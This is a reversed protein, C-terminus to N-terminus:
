VVKRRAAEAGLFVRRVRAACGGACGLLPQLEVVVVVVVRVAAVEFGGCFGVVGSAGSVLEHRAFCLVYADFSFDVAVEIVVAIVALLVHGGIVAALLSHDNGTARRRTITISQMDIHLPIKYYFNTLRQTPLRIM